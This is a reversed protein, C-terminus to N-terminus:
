GYGMRERTYTDKANPPRPLIGRTMEENVMIMLALWNDDLIMAGNIANALYLSALWFPILSKDARDCEELLANLKKVNKTAKKAMTNKTKNDLSVYWVAIARTIRDTQPVLFAGMFLDFDERIEKISMDNVLRMNVKKMKEKIEDQEKKSM